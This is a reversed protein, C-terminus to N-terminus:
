EEEGTNKLAGLMDYAGKVVFSATSFEAPVVVETFGGEQLGTKVEVMEFKDPGRAVFVFSKGDYNVIAADPLAPVTQPDTEIIASFFMGPLLHTDEKKLHGHVRITRDESIEKGVLYISALREESENALTFRVLQGVKLKNVDKEFITIEAHLHDSDVIKFMVDNPNVFM